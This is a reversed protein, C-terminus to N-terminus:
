SVHDILIGSTPQRTNVYLLRFQIKLCLVGREECIPLRSKVFKTYNERIIPEATRWEVDVKWLPAKPDAPDPRRRIIEADRGVFIYVNLHLHRSAPPKEEPSRSLVKGEPSGNAFTELADTLPSGFTSYSDKIDQHELDLIIDELRPLCAVLALIFPPIHDMLTNSFHISRLNILSSLKLLEPAQEAFYVM